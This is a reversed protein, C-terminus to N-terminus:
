DDWLRDASGEGCAGELSAGDGGNDLFARGLMDDDTVVSLFGFVFGDFRDESCAVETLAVWRRSSM